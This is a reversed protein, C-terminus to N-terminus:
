LGFFPRNKTLIKRQCCECDPNFNSWDKSRENRSNRDLIFNGNEVISELPLRKVTLKSISDEEKSLFYVQCNRDSALKADDKRKM